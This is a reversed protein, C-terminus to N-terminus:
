PRCTGCPVYGAAEAEERSEFRILNHSAINQAHPCDPYHFKDSRASGVYKGVGSFGTETSSDQSRGAASTKIKINEGDCTIVIDGYIDTRYIEAGARALKDLTEAHPHGYSNGQGAMIVAIQPAAAALFEPTSSTRSGHHAVKLVDTPLLHKQKALMIAEAEAEADGTFIFTVQGHDLRLVISSNNADDMLEDPHLVTVKVGPAFEIIEGARPTHYPIDLQDILTLFNQYTLTTHPLGPDYVRGIPFNNAVASFAGIHDSHPHTAIFIDISSIGAKKLYSVIKEGASREGCDILMVNDDAQILISDGQGVDIFHVILSETGNKSTSSSQDKSQDKQQRSIIVTRTVADWGVDEGLAEGVFRLPVFTRNQIIQAPVDIIRIQNNVTPQRSDIPIRVEVGDRTGIATRTAPDWEVEAGLAEFIARMPVLTRGSQIIPPPDFHHETGDILVSIDQGHAVQPLVLTLALIFLFLATTRKKM